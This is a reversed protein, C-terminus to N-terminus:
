AKIFFMISHIFSHISEVTFLVVTFNKNLVVKLFIVRTANLPIVLGPFNFTYFDKSYELYCITTSQILVIAVPICLHSFFVITLTFDVLQM